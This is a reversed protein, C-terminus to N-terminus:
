CPGGPLPGGAATSDRVTARGLGLGGCGALAQVVRAALSTAIGAARGAAVNAAIYVGLAALLSPRRGFRDSVPGCLLQGGAVGFLYLTVALQITGRSVGFDVTALPPV